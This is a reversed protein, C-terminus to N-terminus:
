HRNSRAAEAIRKVVRPTMEGNDTRGRSREFNRVAERVTADSSDHKLPYGLKLLADRATRTLRATEEVKEQHLFDGIPDSSNRNDSKAPEMRAPKSPLALNGNPLNTSPPVVVLPRVPPEAVTTTSRSMDRSPMLKAKSAPDELFLPAPHRGRQLVLANLMIGAILASIVIGAYARAPLSTIKSVAPKLLSASRSRLEIGRDNKVRALAQSM